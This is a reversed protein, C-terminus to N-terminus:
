HNWAAGPTLMGGGPATPRSYYRYGGSYYPGGYYAYPGPGYAYYAPSRYYGGYGPDM